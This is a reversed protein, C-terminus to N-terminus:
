NVLEMKANNTQMKGIAPDLGGDNRMVKERGNRSSAKAIHDDKADLNEIMKYKTHIECKETTNM